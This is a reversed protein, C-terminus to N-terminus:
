PAAALPEAAVPRQRSRRAYASVVALALFILPLAFQLVTALMKLYVAATPQESAAVSMGALAHLGFYSGAALVLALWWPLVAAQEAWGSLAGQGQTRAM